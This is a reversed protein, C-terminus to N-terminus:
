KNLLGNDCVTGWSSDEIFSRSFSILLNANESSKDLAFASCFFFWNDEGAAPLEEGGGEM